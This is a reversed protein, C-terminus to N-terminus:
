MECRIDPRVTNGDSDKYYAGGEGSGGGGTYNEDADPVTTVSSAGSVTMSYPYPISVEVYNMMAQLMILLILIFWRSTQGSTKTSSQDLAVGTKPNVKGTVVLKDGVNFTLNEGCVVSEM